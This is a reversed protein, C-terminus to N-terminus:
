RITFDHECSHPEVGCKEFVARRLQQVVTLYDQSCHLLVCRAEPVGGSLQTRIALNYQSCQLLPAAVCRAVYSLEGRSLQERRLELEDQFCHM